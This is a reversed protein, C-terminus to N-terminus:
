FLILSKSLNSNKEPAARASTPLTRRPRSSQHPQLNLAVLPYRLYFTHLISLFSEYLVSFESSLTSDFVQLLSQEICVNLAEQERIMNRLVDKYIEPFDALNLLFGSYVNITEYFKMIKVLLEVDQTEIEQWPVNFKNCFGYKTMLLACYKLVVDQSTSSFYKKLKESQANKWLSEIKAVFSVCHLSNGIFGSQSMYYHLLALSKICTKPKNVDVGFLCSFFKGMKEPKKKAKEVLKNLIIQNFSSEKDETLKQIWSRTSTQLKNLLSLSPPKSEEIRLFCLLDQCTARKLPNDVFVKDLFTAWYAGISKISTKDRVWPSKHDPKVVEYVVWGLSWIDVQTTIPLGLNIDKAEPPMIDRFMSNEFDESLLVGYLGELENLSISSELGGLKVNMFSDVFIHETLINRHIFKKKHVKDLTSVLNFIVQKQSRKNLTPIISKLPQLDSIEYLLEGSAPSQRSDVIKILCGSDKLDNYAKLEREFEIQANPLRFSKLLYAKSRCTLVSYTVLTSNWTCYPTRPLDFSLLDM